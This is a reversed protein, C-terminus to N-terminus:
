LAQNDFLFKDNMMGCGCCRGGSLRMGKGESLRMEVGSLKTLKNVNRAKEDKMYKGIPKTYKNKGLEKQGRDYVDDIVKSTSKRLASGLKTNKVNKNYGKKINKFINGGEMEDESDSNIEGGFMKKFM